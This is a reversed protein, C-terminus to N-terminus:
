ASLLIRLFPSSTMLINYFFPLPVLINQYLSGRLIPSVIWLKAKNSWNEPPAWLRDPPAADQKPALGSGDASTRRGGLLCSKKYELQTAVLRPRCLSREEDASYSPPIAGAWGGLFPVHLNAPYFHPARLPLYSNIGILDNTALPHPAGPLQAPCM